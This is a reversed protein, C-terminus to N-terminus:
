RVDFYLTENVQLVRDEVREFVDVEFPRGLSNGALDELITAARLLHRGPKWAEAPTFSWRTQSTEVAVAGELSGGSRDLVEIVRELLARDLPEPFTVVLADRTGAPPPVVRWESTRPPAHDPPGVRFRKRGESALARGRADPWGRDVVLTYARGERLPSGVEQNPLLERKVRGPDFLLTLRKGDKDWLEQDIELFALEVAEGDEDILRIRRYAEGRSMPASFHLYLKLLNEPLVDPSPDVRELATPPTEAVAALQLLEVLPPQGPARYVARYRLGPQLPFRPAFVVADGDRAAAGLIPPPDSPGDVFLELTAEAAAPRARVVGQELTIRTGTDALVAAGAVLWAAAASRLLQYLPHQAAGGTGGRESRPLSDRDARLLV